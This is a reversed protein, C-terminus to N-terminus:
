VDRVPRASPTAYEASIHPAHLLWAPHKTHVLEKLLEGAHPLPADPHIRSFNVPGLIKLVRLVVFNGRANEPFPSREFRFLIRGSATHTKGGYFHWPAFPKFKIAHFHEPTAICLTSTVQSVDVVFPQELYSLIPSHCINVSFRSVAAVAQAVEPADNKLCSLLAAYRSSLQALRLVPIKWTKGDRGVFDKGTQFQAPANSHAVRFRIEADLPPFSPDHHLYLFGQTAPPFPLRSASDYTLRANHNVTPDRTHSLDLFDSTRLRRPDLTSFVNPRTRAIEKVARSLQVTKPDASPVYTPNTKSPLLRLISSYFTRYQINNHRKYKLLTGEVPLLDHASAQIPELIKIVRMVFPIDSTHEALTVQEFRVVVKVKLNKPWFKFPLAEKYLRGIPTVISIRSTAGFTIIFPQEVFTLVRACADVRSLYQRYTRLHSLHDPQVYGDAISLVELPAHQRSSLQLIDLSWPIVGDPGLLDTGQEFSAPNSDATVRFRVQGTTPPLHTAQHWYLFGQTGHPFRTPVLSRPTYHLSGRVLQGNTLAANFVPKSTDSVKFFDSTQLRARDLTKITITRSPAHTADYLKRRAVISCLVRSLPRSSTYLM